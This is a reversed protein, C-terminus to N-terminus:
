RRKEKYFIEVISGADPRVYNQYIMIKAEAAESNFELLYSDRIIKGLDIKTGIFLSYVFSAGSRGEEPADMAKGTQMEFTLEWGRDPMEQLYFKRTELVTLPVLYSINNNEATGSWRVSGFPRPIDNFDVGKANDEKPLVAFVFPNAEIATTGDKSAYKIIKVECSNDARSVLYIEVAMDNREFRIRKYAFFTIGMDKILAFGNKKFFKEYFAEVQKLTNKSLYMEGPGLWDTCGAGCSPFMNEAMPESAPPPPIDVPPGSKPVLSRFKAYRNYNPFKLDGPEFSQKEALASLDKLDIYSVPVFYKNIVVDTGRGNLDFFNIDIVANDRDFRLRRLGELRLEKDKRYLFGNAELSARFERELLNQNFGSNIRYVGGRRSFSEKNKDLGIIKELDPIDLSAIDSANALVLSSLILASLFILNKFSYKINM